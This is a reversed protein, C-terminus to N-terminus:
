LLPKSGRAVREAMVRSVSSKFDRAQGNVKRPVSELVTVEDTWRDQNLWTAAYLNQRSFWADPNARFRERYEQVASILFEAAEMADMGSDAFKAVRNCYATFADRKSARNWYHKWFEAFKSDLFSLSKGNRGRSQISSLSTEGKGIKTKFEEIQSSTYTYTAYKSNWSFGSSDLDPGSNSEVVGSLDLFGSVNSSLKQSKIFEYCGRWEQFEKENPCPSSRDSARKHSPLFKPQTDWQGWLQGQYEFVFLLFSERFEKILSWFQEESPTKKFQNFITLLIKRYNLEIRGFGNSGCWFWPWAWRARDSLMAMRDGGFM